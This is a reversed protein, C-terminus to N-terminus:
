QVLRPRIDVLENQDPNKQRELVSALTYSDLTRDISQKLEQWVSKMECFNDSSCRDPNVPDSECIVEFTDGEAARLIERLTTEEPAMSLLFGGRPGRVSRIVGGKRLRHLIQQAYQLPIDQTQAIESAGIAGAGEGKRAIFLCCLIGYEGWRTIHM